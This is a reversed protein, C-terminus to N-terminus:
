AVEGDDHRNGKGLNCTECLVWLNAPTCLLCKDANGNAAFSHPTKHDIHLPRDKANCRQCTSDDRKLVAYRLSKSIRGGCRQRHENYAVLSRRHSQYQTLPFLTGSCISCFECDDSLGISYVGHPCLWDQTDIIHRRLARVLDSPIRPEPRMHIALCEGCWSWHEITDPHNPQCTPFLLGCDPCELVSGGFEGCHACPEEFIPDHASLLKEGPLPVHNLVIFGATM